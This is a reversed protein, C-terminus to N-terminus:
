ILKIVWVYFYNDIKVFNKCPEIDGVVIYSPCLIHMNGTALLPSCLNHLMTIIKM